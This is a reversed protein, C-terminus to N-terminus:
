NKPPKYENPSGEAPSGFIIGPRDEKPELEVAFRCAHHFDELYTVWNDCPLVFVDIKKLHEQIQEITAEDGVSDIMLFHVGNLDLPM